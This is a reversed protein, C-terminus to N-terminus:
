LMGVIVPLSCQREVKAQRIGLMISLYFYIWMFGSLVQWFEGNVITFVTIIITIVLIVAYWYHLHNGKFPFVRVGTRFDGQTGSLNLGTWVLSLIILVPVSMIPLALSDAWPPYSERFMELFLDGVYGVNTILAAMVGIVVIWKKKGPTKLRELGTLSVVLVVLGALVSTIGYNEMAIKPTLYHERLQDFKESDNKGDATLVACKDQYEKENTYRQYSVSKVILVVGVILILLGAIQLIRNIM